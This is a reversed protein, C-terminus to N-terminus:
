TKKTPEVTGLPMLSGGQLPSRRPLYAGRDYFPLQIRYTSDSFCSCSNGAKLCPLIDFINLLKVCLHRAM